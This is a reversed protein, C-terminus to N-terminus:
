NNEEKLFYACFRKLFTGSAYNYRFQMKDDYKIAWSFDSFSIILHAVEKKKVFEFEIVPCYPSMVIFTSDNHYNAGNSILTYKLVIAQEKSLTGLKEKRVFHADLEYDDSNINEKPYLSYVNVSKANILVDTLRRGLIEYAHKDPHIWEDCVPEDPSGQQGDNAENATPNCAFMCASCMTLTLVMTFFRKMAM